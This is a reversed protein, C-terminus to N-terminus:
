MVWMLGPSSSTTIASTPRSSVDCRIRWSAAPCTICTPQACQEVTPREPTAPGSSIWWAAQSRMTDAPPLLIWACAKVCAKEITLPPRRASALACGEGGDVIPQMQRRCPLGAGLRQDRQIQTVELRHRWQRGACRSARFRRPGVGEPGRPTRALAM